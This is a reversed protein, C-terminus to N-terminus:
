NCHKYGSSLCRKAMQQAETIASSSLEAAALDRSKLANKSGQAAAINFWMYAAMADRPVGHGNGYMAGLNNQAAALGQDAAKRYWKVAEGDDQLVGRGDDYMVGLSVQAAAVGQEAAKRYWKAAEGDDQPVGRGYRYMWGLSFQAEAVGQEAAKRFWKVADGYAGARQAAIGEHLDRQADARVAQGAGLVSVVMVVVTLLQKM